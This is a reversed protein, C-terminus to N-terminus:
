LCQPSVLVLVCMGGVPLSECMDDTVLLTSSVLVCALVYFVSTPGEGVCVVCMV